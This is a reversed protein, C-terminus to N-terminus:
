QVQVRKQLEDGCHVVCEEGLLYAITDIGEYYYLKAVAGPPMPLVNM